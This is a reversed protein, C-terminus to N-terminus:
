FLLISKRDLWNKLDRPTFNGYGTSTRRAPFRARAKKAVCPWVYESTQTPEQKVQTAEKKVVASLDASALTSNPNPKHYVSAIERVAREKAKRESKERPLM